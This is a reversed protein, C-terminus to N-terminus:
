YLLYQQRKKLYKEVDAKWSQIIEQAPKGAQLARRVADTGWVRDFMKMRPTMESGGLIQQDPYLKLLVEMMHVGVELPRVADFNTIHIQVGACQQEEFKYYHPIFFAPRFYVGPLHRANLM